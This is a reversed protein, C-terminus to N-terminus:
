ARACVLARVTAPPAPLPTCQGTTHGNYALTDLYCDALTLRRLHERKPINPMFIVRKTDVQTM